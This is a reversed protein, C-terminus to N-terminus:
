EGNLDCLIDEQVSFFYKEASSEIDNTDIELTETYYWPCGYPTPSSEDTEYASTEAFSNWMEYFKTSFQEKQADTLNTVKKM